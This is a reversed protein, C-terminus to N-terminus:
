FLNGAFSFSRQSVPSRGGSVTAAPAALIPSAVSGIKWYTTGGTWLWFKSPCTQTKPHQTVVSQTDIAACDLEEGTVQVMSLKKVNAVSVEFIPVARFDFVVDFGVDFVM